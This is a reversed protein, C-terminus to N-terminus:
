SRYKKVIVGRRGPVLVERCELFVHQYTFDAQADDWQELWDDFDVIVVLSEDFRQEVYTVTGVDYSDDTHFLRVEEGVCIFAM